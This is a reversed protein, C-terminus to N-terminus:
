PVREKYYNYFSFYLGFGIAERFFTPLFGQYVTGKRITDLIASTLSANSTQLTIKVKEM